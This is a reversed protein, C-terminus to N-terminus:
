FNLYQLKDPAVVVYKDGAVRKIEATVADLNKDVFTYRPNASSIIEGDDVMKFTDGGVQPFREKWRGIWKVFKREQELELPLKQTNHQFSKFVNISAGTLVLLTLATFTIKAKKSVFM